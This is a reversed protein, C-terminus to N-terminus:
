SLNSHETSHILEYMATRGGCNLCCASWSSLGNTYDSCKWEGIGQSSRFSYFYGVTHSRTIITTMSGSGMTRDLKGSIDCIWGIVSLLVYIRRLGM